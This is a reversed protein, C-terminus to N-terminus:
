NRSFYGGGMPREDDEDMDAGFMEIEDLIDGLENYWDTRLDFVYVRGEYDFSLEVACTFGEYARLEKLRREMARQDEPPMGAAELQDLADDINEPTFEQYHFVILKAGSKRAVALYERFDPSRDCDWYIIPLSDAIRSLGYFVNFGQEVLYKGVEDKLTDLNADM